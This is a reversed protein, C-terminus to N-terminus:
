LSNREAVFIFQLGNGIYGTETGYYALMYVDGFGQAKCTGIIDWGFDFFVLSGSSSVPNGHYVPDMLFAIRGNEIRARTSTKIAMANFPVSFLLSGGKRLVRFAEGMARQFDPVHEYVDCSVILDQSEDKLTLNLADEHRLGNVMTGGAQDHGLYESGILNIAWAKQMHRIFAYFPTIQEYLYVDKYGRLHIANRVMRIMFRLRNNMGCSSCALRERFNPTVGDSHQYDVLFRVQKRCVECFGDIFYQREPKILSKEWTKRKAIVPLFEQYEQPTRLEVANVGISNLHESVHIDERNLM